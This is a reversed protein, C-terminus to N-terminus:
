ARGSLNLLPVLEEATLTFGLGAGVTGGPRSAAHAAAEDQVETHLAAVLEAQRAVVWSMLRDAAVLLEATGLGGTGPGATGPEATGPEATSPEATDPATELADAAPDPGDGRRLMAVLTEPGAVEVETPPTDGAVPRHRARGFAPELWIKEGLSFLSM